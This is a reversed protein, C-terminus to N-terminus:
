RIRRLILFAGVTLSIIVFGSFAIDRVIAPTKDPKYSFEEGSSLLLVEDPTNRGLIGYPISFELTRKEFPLVIGVEREFQAEGDFFLRFTENYLAEGSKNTIDVALKVGQFPLTNKQSLNIEPKIHKEPSLEGLSIFIDKQPNAGLKYSGPPTPSTPDEGHMVFAFHNMDLKSFYDIGGTTKGWTPDVPVWISREEDWYEPWAHLVDAVLSLPQLRDNQTHAYGNVERAPIGAARALAIFLDTFETCIANSPNNLASLAGLRDGGESVRDYNYDLSSVVYDYIAEPTVLEQALSKINSDNVQWYKSESLYRGKDDNSLLSKKWANAFIQVNGIARVDVRERAALNYIALWNGDEDQYVNDPTPVLSEFHVKQFSTDPPLSIEMKSSLALPNQLHYTLDFTFVQSEGFAATVGAKNLLTKDFYYTMKDRGTLKNDPQPSIYAPEGFSSPLVLRVLYSEFVNENALRPISIEKVDGKKEFISSDEYVISFERVEGQGVVNDDFIVKIATKNNESTTEVEYDGSENFARANLVNAGDLTLTYNTAHVETQVNTIAIHHTVLTPATESVEYSVESSVLFNTQAFVVKSFLAFFVIVLLARKLIM